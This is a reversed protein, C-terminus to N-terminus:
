LRVTDRFGEDLLHRHATENFFESESGLTFNRRLLHTMVKKYKAVVM